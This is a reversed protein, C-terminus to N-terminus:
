GGLELFRVSGSFTEASVRAGGSGVTHRFSREPTYRSESRAEGGFASEVDGSFTEAELVASLDSPLRVVVDGSHSEFHLAADAAPRGSFTVTGSVTEADVDQVPGDAQIEVSGSVSEAGVSGGAVRLVVDGSVSGGRTESSRPASVDVRGNVAEAEVSTADGDYTISGNVTELEVDGAVGEVTLQGDVLDARVSAGRPVSIELPGVDGLDRHSYGDGGRAELEITVGGDEAEFTLEEFEPHMAGRVRVESRDWATVRVTRVVVDIEVAADAEVSRTEDIPRLGEQASATATATLALLAGGVVAAIGRGAKRGFKEERAHM